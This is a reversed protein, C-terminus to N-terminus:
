LLLPNIRWVGALLLCVRWPLPMGLKCLHSWGGTGQISSRISLCQRDRAEVLCLLPPYHAHLRCEEPFVLLELDRTLPQYGQSRGEALRSQPRALLHTEMKMRKPVTTVWPYPVTEKLVFMVLFTPPAPHRQKAQHTRFTGPSGKRSETMVQSDVKGFLVTVLTHTAPISFEGLTRSPSVVRAEWKRIHFDLVIVSTSRLSFMVSLLQLAILWETEKRGERQKRGERDEIKGGGTRGKKGKWRGRGEKEVEGKKEEM